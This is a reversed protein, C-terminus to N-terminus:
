PTVVCTPIYSVRPLMKRDTGKQSWKQCEMMAELAFNIAEYSVFLQTALAQHITPTPISKRVHSDTLLIRRSGSFIVDSTCLNSEALRFLWRGKNEIRFYYEPLLLPDTGNDVHVM